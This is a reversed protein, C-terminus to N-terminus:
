GAARLESVGFTAGDPDILAASIFLPTETPEMAVEGGNAVAAAVAAETDAVWFDLGWVPGAATGGAPMMMAVVDRPVPQEPEGGVFGPLRFMHMPMEGFAFPEAEWGFAARYFASAAEPDASNLVSMSWAGPENVLQAGERDAPEWVGFRAGETDALVALRGAPSADIPDALLTAGAGTAARVAEEVEEVRVQMTWSGGEVGPPLSGLGAVDRGRVRAVRYGGAAGTTSAECPGVFEWGFVAGYFAALREPQASMVEVWCPVGVPYADRESM